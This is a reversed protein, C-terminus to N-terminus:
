LECANHQGGVQMDGSSQPCVGSSQIEDEELVWTFSAQKRQTVRLRRKIDEFFKGADGRRNRNCHCM